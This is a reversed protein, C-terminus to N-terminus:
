GGAAENLEHQFAFYVRRGRDTLRVDDTRGVSVLTVYGRDRLPDLIRSELARYKATRSDGIDAPSELGQEDAWTIVNWKDTALDDAARGHLYSLM